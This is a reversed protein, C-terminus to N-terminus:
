PRASGRSPPQSPLASGGQSLSSENAQKQAPAGASRLPGSPAPGTFSSSGTGRRQKLQELKELARRADNLISTTSYPAETTATSDTASLQASNVKVPAAIAPSTGPAASPTNSFSQPLLLSPAPSTGSFTQAMM